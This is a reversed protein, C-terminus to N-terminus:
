EGEGGGGGPAAPEPGRRERVLPLESQLALGIRVWLRRFLARHMKTETSCTPSKELLRRNLAEDSKYSHHNLSSPSNFLSGFGAFCPRVALVHSSFQILAEDSKYSHYNLNSPLNFGQGFGAFYSSGTSVHWSFPILAKDAEYSPSQSQLALQTGVMLRRVVRRSVLM